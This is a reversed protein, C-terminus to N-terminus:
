SGAEMGIVYDTNSMVPPGVHRLFGLNRIRVFTAARPCLRRREIRISAAHVSEPAGTSCDVAHWTRRDHSNINHGPL